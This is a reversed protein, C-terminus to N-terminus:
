NLIKRIDADTVQIVNRIKNNDSYSILIEQIAADINEKWYHLFKHVRPIEPVVDETQWVFEQIITYDPVYYFIDVTVLNKKVWM